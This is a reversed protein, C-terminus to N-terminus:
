RKLARELNYSGHASVGVSAAAEEWTVENESM